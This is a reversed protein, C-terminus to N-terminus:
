NEGYKLKFLILDDKNEFSLFPDTEIGNHLISCDQTNEKIWTVQENTVPNELNVTFYEQKFLELTERLEYNQQSIRNAFGTFSVLVNRIEYLAVEILESKTCDNILDTNSLIKTIHDLEDQLDTSNDLLYMEKKLLPM